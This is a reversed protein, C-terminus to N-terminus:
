STCLCGTDGYYSDYGCGLTRAQYDEPCNSFEGMCQEAHCADDSCAQPQWVGNVCHMETLSDQCFTAGETCGYPGSCNCFYSASADDYGCDGTLGKAQCEQECDRVSLVGGICEALALGGGCTSEMCTVSAQDCYCQHKGEIAVSCGIAMSFGMSECQQDCSMAMTSQDAVDCLGLTNDDLCVNGGLECPDGGDTTDTTSQGEDAETTTEGSNGDTTTDIEDSCTGDICLQQGECDSNQTCAVTENPDHGNGCGFPLLVLALMLRMTM